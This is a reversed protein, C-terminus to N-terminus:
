VIPKDTAECIDTELPVRLRSQAFALDTMKKYLLLIAIPAIRTKRRASPWKPWRPNSEM